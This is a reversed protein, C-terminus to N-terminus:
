HVVMELCELSKSKGREEQKVEEKVEVRLMPETLKGGPCPMGDDSTGSKSSEKRRDCKCLIEALCQQANRESPPTERFSPFRYYM